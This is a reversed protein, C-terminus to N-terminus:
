FGIEVNQHHFSCCEDRAKRTRTPSATKRSSTCSATSTGSSSSRAGRRPCVVDGMPSAKRLREKNDAFTLGYCAELPSAISLSPPLLPKQQPSARPSTGPTPVGAVDVRGLDSCKAELLAQVEVILMYPARERTNFVACDTSAFRLVRRLQATNSATPIYCLEHSFFPNMGELMHVLDASRAARDSISSLSKSINVISTLFIVLHQLLGPCIGATTQIDAALGDLLRCTKTDGEHLSIVSRLFLYMRLAVHASARSSRRIVDTLTATTEPNESSVLLHVTQATYIILVDLFTDDMHLTDPVAYLRLETLWKWYSLSVHSLHSM